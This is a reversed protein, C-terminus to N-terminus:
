GKMSSLEALCVYGELGKPASVRDPHLMHALLWAALVARPSPRSLANDADGYVVCVHGERFAKTENLPTSELSELKKIAAERGGMTTVVIYDPKAALIQEYSVMQWRYLNHFANVAGATSIITDQFTGGGAVWAGNAQLWVLLAVRPRTVNVLERSLNGLVGEMWAVVRDAATENGLLTGVARADWEIDSWTRSMDCRLFFVRLGEQELLRALREQNPVGACGLVLDPRAELIKEPSPNWYGGVVTVNKPLGKVGLSYKDVGVLRSCLGMMCVTETISPALSVVRRAPKELVITRGLADVLVIRTRTATVTAMHVTTVTTASTKTVTKTTTEVFTKTTTSPVTVTTPTAAAGRPAAVYYGAAIGVIVAVIVAAVWAARSM